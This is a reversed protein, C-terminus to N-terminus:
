KGIAMGFIAFTGPITLTVAPASAASFPPTYVTITSNGLNGVYMNGSADFSIAEPLNIGTTIAFAPVSAATLPLNYADVRGTAGAVSCVYGVSGSGSMKRYATAAVVPTTVTPAGTYPSAFVYLNSGAGGSNSVYLNGSSDLATGIAATLGAGTTTSSPVSANTFPHTFMNVNTSVNAVFFDGASTFTIQGNNSAAGNTFAAAPTSAASLPAAFFKLNGANDGVAANGSADIGVSVVNNSAFSFAATSAATIPLTYVQVTGPTNDNGVYLHQVVVVPTPTVASKSNCGALLGALALFCTFNRLM